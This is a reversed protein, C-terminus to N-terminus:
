YLETMCVQFFFTCSVCLLGHSERTDAPRNISLSQHNTAAEVKQCREKGELKAQDREQGEAWPGVRRM